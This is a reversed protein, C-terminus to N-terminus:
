KTGFSIISALHFLNDRANLHSMDRQTAVVQQFIASLESISLYM